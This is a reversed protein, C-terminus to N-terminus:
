RARRSAQARMAQQALVPFRASQGRSTESVGVPARRAIELSALAVLALYFPIENGDASVFQAGCAFGILGTFAFGGMATMWPDDRWRSLQWARALSSVFFVVLSLLGPVGIEAGVELWYTHAAKGPPWGYSEAVLPWHHPGIGTVPNAVMVTACDKWLELRSQASSDREEARAFTTQFRAVLQPGTFRVALAVILALALLYGPRKPMVLVVAVGTVILSLIGGRSFTLLVTHMILAACVVAIAKQWLRTASIGLFLAPGVVTVLSVAFTNNDGLLGIERAQNFGRLYSLNMEFGVLGQALVITWALANVQARTRILTIGALFPLFFKFQELVANWAVGQNSASVASLLLCALYCCLATVAVRAERFSWSGFAQFAWGALVAVGVVRSLGGMDGAWSYLMQPRAVSFAVYVCLGVLPQFLAIAAGGYALLYTLILGKM